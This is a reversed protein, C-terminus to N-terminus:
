VHKGKGRFLGSELKRNTKRHQRDNINAIKLAGRDMQAQYSSKWVKLKNGSMNEPKENAM